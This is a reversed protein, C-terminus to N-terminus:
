RMCVRNLLEHYSKRAKKEAKDSVALVGNDNGICQVGIADQNTKVIREAIKLM